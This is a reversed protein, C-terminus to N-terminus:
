GGILANLNGNILAMTFGMLVAGALALVIKEILKIAFRSNLGTLEKEINDLRHKILEIDSNQKRGFM